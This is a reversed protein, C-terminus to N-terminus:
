GRRAEETLDRGFRELAQYKDEPNQDTVRQSGRIDVLVKLINDKTVGNQRLIQGAPTEKNDAIAILIHEASLYEDKLETAEQWAADLVKGLVPSLYLEASVGRVKPIKQLEDELGRRIATVNAGLKQIIPIIIGEEQQLLALLLHEPTVQQHDNSRALEQASQVADQAKLTLRDFRM